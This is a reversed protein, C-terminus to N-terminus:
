QMESCLIPAKKNRITEMKFVPESTTNCKPVSRLENGAHSGLLSLVQSAPFPMYRM